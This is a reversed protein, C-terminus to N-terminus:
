DGGGGVLDLAHGRASPPLSTSLSPFLIPCPVLYCLTLIHLALHVM